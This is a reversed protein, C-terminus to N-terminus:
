IYPSFAPKEAARLGTEFMLLAIDKIPTIKNYLPLLSM